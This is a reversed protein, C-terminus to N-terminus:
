YFCRSITECYLQIGKEKYKTIETHVYFPIRSSLTHTHVYFYPYLYDPLYLCLWAKACLHLMFVGFMVLKSICIHM